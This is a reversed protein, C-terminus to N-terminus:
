GLQGDTPTVPQQRRMFALVDALHDSAYKVAVPTVPKGDALSVTVRWVQGESAIHFTPKTVSASTPFASAVADWVADSPANASNVSDVTVVVGGGVQIQGEGTM